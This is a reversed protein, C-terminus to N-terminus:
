QIPATEDFYQVDATFNRPTVCFGREASATVVRDRLRRVAASGTPTPDAPNACM